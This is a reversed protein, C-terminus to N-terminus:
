TSWLRLPHAAVGHVLPRLRLWLAIFLRRVAEPQRAVARVLLVGGPLATAGARLDDDFPLGPALSQALEPTCAAGAGWLTGYAPWGGLGQPARLVADGSRLAQREEWLPRGDHGVIRTLSRLSARQWHEGSAQRGLLAADWGLATAGDALRLTLQQRAHSDDFYINDQPLWDLRARPQLALAIRQTAPRGPAAKYWKTAGPTTLLAHADEQVRVDIDLTDGAALGGPPHVIVAHCVADGEPYLPKQVMLPGNHQRLVLATRKNCWGFALRLHAHWADHAAQVPLPGSPRPPPPADTNRYMATDSSTRAM